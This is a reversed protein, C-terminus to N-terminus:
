SRLLQVGVRMMWMRAEQVPKSALRFYNRSHYYMSMSEPILKDWGLLGHIYQGMEANHQFGGENSRSQDDLMIIDAREAIEKYSRFRRSQSLISGGNM